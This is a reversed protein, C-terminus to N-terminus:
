QWSVELQSATVTTPAMGGFVCSAQTPPFRVVHQLAITDSFMHIDEHGPIGRM